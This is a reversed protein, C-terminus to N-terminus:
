IVSVTTHGAREGLKIKYNKMDSMTNNQTMEWNDQVGSKLYYFYFNQSANWPMRINCAITDDPGVIFPTIGSFSKSAATNMDGVATSSDINLPTSNMAKIRALEWNSKDKWFDM